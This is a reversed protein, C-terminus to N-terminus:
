TILNKGLHDLTCKIVGYITHHFFFLSLSLSLSFFLGLGSFGEYAKIYTGPRELEVSSYQLEVVAVINQM